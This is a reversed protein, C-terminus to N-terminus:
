IKIIAILSMSIVSITTFIVGSIYKEVSITVVGFLLYSIMLVNGIIFAICLYLSTSKTNRTRITRITQPLFSLGTFASGIISIILITTGSAQKYNGKVAFAGLCTSVVILIFLMAVSVVRAVFLKNNFNNKIYEGNTNRNRIIYYIIPISMLGCLGQGVTLVIGGDTSLLM